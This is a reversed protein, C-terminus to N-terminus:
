YLIKDLVGKEIAIKIERAIRRGTSMPEKYNLYSYPSGTIYLNTGAVIRASIEFAFFELEPTCITEVCFPGFLGPPFLKESSKVVREGIKLIKPLLSERAIVPTNGTVVFSPNMENWLIPVRLLGEINSEYRIDMSMLETKKDLLSYFYHPYFRTGIIYEQITCDKEDWKKAKLKEYFEEESKALFYGEGGKAGPFKVMVWRDIESPNKFELPMRIGADQLWKREKKRDSEWGLVERNGFIPVSLKDEINKGGVYEVFSGHPVIVVNRERLKEQFHEDLIKKYDDVLLFEDPKALPFLDYIKKVQPKCIGITRFGEQKAGFFIQLATHSCITAITIKDKEYKELIKDIEM